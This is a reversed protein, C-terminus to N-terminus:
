STGAHGSGAQRHRRRERGAKGAQAEAGQWQIAELRAVGAGVAARAEDLQVAEVDVVAVFAAAVLRHQHHDVAHDGGQVGPVVPYRGEGRVVADDAEVHGAEAKGAGLAATVIGALPHDADEAQQQVM